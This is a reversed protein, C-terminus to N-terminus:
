AARELAPAYLVNQKWLEIFKQVNPPPSANNQIRAQVIDGHKVEVTCYPKKPASAKRIFLITCNNKVVDKVYRGVCHHLKDGEQTIEKASHPPVVVLGLKTYGYREQLEAFMKAIRRDYAKSTEKQSMDNVRDHEAKLDNPFLVFSSKMDHDLAECMCLYDKYDSMMYSMSYYGKSAYSTKQHTAFQETAYRMLKHPSMFRLPVSIYDENGVSYESCWKMLELDPEINERLLSRIMTLQKPGPDIAQLFPVYKKGVGLVEMVTRGHSNLVSDGYFRSGDADGYVVYTALRYLKLKVLYELMPYQLYEQLYRGVYLPTPDGAYYEKLASYQWPTGKLECDLNRHYLYGSCDAEFNYQWRSFVPRDGRHWPTIRDHGYCYYYKERNVLKNGDWRLILRANEYVSFEPTDRKPYRCYAKVFRIILENEGFQQIVQATSRDIMYGRRGRSKFTIKRKCHPCVGKGNHKAATISVEHRCGTCYANLPAKGKEYDYFIYHPLTERHMFGKIDRPLAKVPKMREVIKQQGKLENAKQKKYLLSYQVNSLSDFGKLNKIQCYRTVRDEDAQSYFSSKERFYYDKNLNGFMSQQWRTGKEDNCLTIYDDKGQFMTWQPTFDGALVKEKAYVYLVLTRHHDINKVATRVIYKIQKACFVGNRPNPKGNPVAFKRLVRKNMM